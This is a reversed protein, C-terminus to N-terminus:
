LQVETYTRGNEGRKIVVATDFIGTELLRKYLERASLEAISGAHVTAFLKVACNSINEIAKVDEPATIEDLAIVQPNMARLLMMAAAAKPVGTMVDTCRGVDFQPVGDRVAAVECREDALSVRRGGDSARRVLERLLTTKGGGPPSVILVSRTGGSLRNAISGGAGTIQKPIRLAVSSVSRFAKSVDGAYVGCVGVRVGGEATIFGHKLEGMVSHMSSSSARELVSYLDSLETLLGGCLPREGDPLLVTAERGSRLRFEEAGRRQEEGLTEAAARLQPPLLSVADLFGDRM